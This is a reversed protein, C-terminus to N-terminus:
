MKRRVDSMECGGRVWESVGGCGAWVASRADRWHAARGPYLVLRVDAIGAATAAFLEPTFARDKEGAIVLTPARIQGLRATVDYGCEADITALMDAPDHQREGREGLWLLATMPWRLMPGALVTALM